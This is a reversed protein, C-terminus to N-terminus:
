ALDMEKQALKEKKADRATCAQTSSVIMALFHIAGTILLLLTISTGLRLRGGFWANRTDECTTQAHEGSLESCSPYEVYSYKDIPGNFFMGLVVLGTLTFEMLAFWGDAKVFERKTSVLTYARKLGFANLVMMIPILIYAVYNHSQFKTSSIVLFIFNLFHGTEALGGECRWSYRFSGRFAVGEVGRDEM